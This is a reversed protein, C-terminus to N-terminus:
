TRGRRAFQPELPAESRLPVAERVIVRPSPREACLAVLYAGAPRFQWFDWRAADDGLEADIEIEVAGDDPYHFAFKELPLSLGMGRAKIYSEKFTWYEFFRLQRDSATHLAAVEAPAFYRDAVDISAARDRVNEVDIGVARHRAVALVILSHTHSLNFTLGMATAADNAPEPRGYDNCAFVWEKPDAAAYRSLVSRLLARTVLYRKRDREFYFRVQQAREQPDLLERYGALLREDDIAAYDTLWVHVEDTALPLLEAGPDPM